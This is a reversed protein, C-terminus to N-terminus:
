KSQNIQYKSLKKINKHEAQLRQRISGMHIKAKKVKSTNFISKQHGEPTGMYDQLYFTKKRIRSV